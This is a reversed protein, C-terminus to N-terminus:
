KILWIPDIFNNAVIYNNYFGTLKEYLSVATFFRVRKFCGLLNKEAIYRM